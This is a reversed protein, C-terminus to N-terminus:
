HTAVPREPTLADEEPGSRTRMPATGPGKEIVVISDYMHVAAIESGAITRFDRGHYWGHMDDILDKALEVGTGPRRYGGGYFERWYSTHLDEIVYLGGVPLLPFLARFSAQQHEAVHSGDDLVVDLRGMEDVVQSLFTADAQSGIRVQNPADARNACEPDIDVGFLTAAPGFYDRWLELSGGRFVGIELMAFDTNRYQAFHREYVDLYGIWKDVTRGTRQFFLTTLPGEANPNAARARATGTSFKELDPVPKDIGLKRRGGEILRTALDSARAREMWNRM